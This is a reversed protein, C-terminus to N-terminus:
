SLDDLTSAGAVCAVNSAASICILYLILRGAHPRGLSPFSILHFDGDLNEEIAAAAPSKVRNSSPPSQAAQVQTDPHSTPVAEAGTAAMVPTQASNAVCGDVAVSEAPTEPEEPRGSDDQANEQEIASPTDASGENASQKLIEKVKERRKCNDPHSMRRQYVDAM